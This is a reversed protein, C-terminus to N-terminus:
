KGYNKVYYEAEKEHYTAIIILIGKKNVKPIDKWKRSDTLHIDSIMRMREAIVHTKKELIKKTKKITQHHEVKILKPLSASNLKIGNVQWKVLIEKPM